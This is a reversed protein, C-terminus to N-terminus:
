RAGGGMMKQMVQQMMQGQQAQEAQNKQGLAGVAETLGKLGSVVEPSPGKAIAVRGGVVFDLTNRDITALPALKRKRAM